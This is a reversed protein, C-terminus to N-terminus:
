INFLFLMYGNVMKRSHLKMNAQKYFSQQKAQKYFLWHSRKEFCALM